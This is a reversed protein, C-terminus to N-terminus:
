GPAPASPRTSNRRSRTWCIFISMATASQRNTSQARIKILYSRGDNTIEMRSMLAGVEASKRERTRAEENLVTTAPPTTLSQLASAIWTVPNLLADFFGPKSLTANYEPWQDINLKDAVKEALSRSKLIEIESRVAAQDGSLGAIMSTLDTIQNRRTDLMVTAEATYRPTLQFVWVTALLTGVLACGVIVNARRRLIGFIHHLDLVDEAPKPAGAVARLSAVARPKPLDIQKAESM